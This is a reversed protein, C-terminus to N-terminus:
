AVHRKDDTDIWEVSAPRVRDIRDAFGNLDVGVHRHQEAIDAVTALDLVTQDCEDLLGQEALAAFSM